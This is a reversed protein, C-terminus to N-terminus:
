LIEKYKEKIKETNNNKQAKRKLRIDGNLIAKITEKDKTNRKTKDL